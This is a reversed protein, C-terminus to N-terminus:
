FPIRAIYNLIIISIWEVFTTGGWESTVLFRLTTFFAKNEKRYFQDMIKVKLHLKWPFYSHSIDSAHGPLRSVGSRLSIVPYVRPSVAASSPHSAAAQGPPLKLRNQRCQLLAEQTWTKRTFCHGLRVGNCPGIGEKHPSGLTYHPLQSTM